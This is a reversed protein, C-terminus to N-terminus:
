IDRTSDDSYNEYDTGGKSSMDAYRNRRAFAPHPTSLRGSLPKLSLGVHAQSYATGRLFFTFPTAVQNYTWSGLWKEM